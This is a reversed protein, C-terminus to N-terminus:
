NKSPPFLSDFCRHDGFLLALGDRKPQDCPAAGNITKAFEKAIPSFYITVEHAGSITKGTSFMAMDVPSGAALFATKFSEQMERTPLFADVGNGPFIGYWM